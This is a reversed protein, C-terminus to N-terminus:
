RRANQIILEVRRNQARGEPTDNPAVPRLEGQGTAQIRGPKIGRSILYERVSAARDLSLKQNLEDPGRSDTHGEVVLLKDEDVKKLVEAVRDLRQRAIPLLESKGTVFLVSGELTIVTGRSEEQVRAIEKLSAVAADAQKEADERRRKEDALRTASSQEEITLARRAENLDSQASELSRRASAADQEAARRLAQQKEKYQQDALVQERRAKEMSAYTTALKARRTAVYALSMEDFSGPDDAHAQEARELAQRAELVRAPAYTNADSVRVDDYARRADALEPTVGVSACGTLALGFLSLSATRLNLFRSRM